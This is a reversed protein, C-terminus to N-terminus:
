ITPRPSGRRPHSGPRRHAGRRTQAVRWGGGRRGCRAARGGAFLIHSKSFCDIPSAQAVGGARRAWSWRGREGHGARACASDRGEASAAREDRPDEHMHPEATRRPMPRLVHRGSRYRTKFLCVAGIHTKICVSREAGIHTKICVSRESLPHGRGPIPSSSSCSFRRPVPIAPPATRPGSVIQVGGSSAAAGGDLLSAVVYKQNGWIDVTESRLM